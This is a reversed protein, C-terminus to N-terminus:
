INIFSNLLAWIGNSRDQRLGPRRSTPSWTASLDHVLDVVKKNTPQGFEMPDIKDSVLDAVKKNTLFKDAVLDGVQKNTSFKDGIWIAVCSFSDQQAQQKWCKAVHHCVKSLGVIINRWHADIRGSSFGFLDSIRRWTLDKDEESSNITVDWLCTENHVCNILNENTLSLTTVM